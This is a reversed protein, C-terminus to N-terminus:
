TRQYRPSPKQRARREMDAKEQDSLTVSEVRRREKPDFAERRRSIHGRVSRIMADAEVLKSYAVALANRTAENNAYTDLTPDTMPTKVNLHQGSPSTLSDRWVTRYDGGLNSCSLGISALTSDFVGPPPPAPVRKM